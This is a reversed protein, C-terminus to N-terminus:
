AFRIGCYLRIFDQFSSRSKTAKKTIADEELKQERALQEQELEEQNVSFLTPVEKKFEFNQDRAQM